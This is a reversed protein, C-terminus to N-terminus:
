HALSRYQNSSLIRQLNHSIHSFCVFICVYMCVYMVWARKGDSTPSRSRAKPAFGGDSYVLETSDALERCVLYFQNPPAYTRKSSDRFNSSPVFVGESLTLRWLQGIALCGVMPM